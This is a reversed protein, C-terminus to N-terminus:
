VGEDGRELKGASVACFRAMMSAWGTQQELFKAAICLHDTHAALFKRL